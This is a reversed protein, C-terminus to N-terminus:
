KVHLSSIWVIGMIDTTNVNNTFTVQLMDRPLLAVSLGTQNSLSHGATTTNTWSVTSGIQTTVGQRIYAFVATGSNTASAMSGYCFSVGVVNGVFPVSIGINDWPLPIRSIVAAPSTYTRIPIQVPWLATSNAKNTNPIGAANSFNRFDLLGNAPGQAVGGIYYTGGIVRVLEGYVSEIDSKDFNRRSQIRFKTQAVTM